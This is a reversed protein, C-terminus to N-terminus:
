KFSVHVAVGEFVSRVYVLDFVSLEFSCFKDKRSHGARLVLLIEDHLHSVEQQCNVSLNLPAMFLCLQGPFSSLSFSQLSKLCFREIQLINNLDNKIGGLPMEFGDGQRGRLIVRLSKLM